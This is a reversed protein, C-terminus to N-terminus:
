LRADDRAGVEVGKVLPGHRAAQFIALADAVAEALPKARLKAFANPWVKAMARVMEDKSADAKGCAALKGDRPSYYEVQYGSLRAITAIMASALAMARMARGNIAGGHPLEVIMRSCQGHGMIATIQDAHQAVADMDVNAKRLDRKAQDLGTVVTHSSLCAWAWAQGQRQYEMLALGSCRFGIDIAMVRTNFM